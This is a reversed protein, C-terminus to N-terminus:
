GRELCSFLTEEKKQKESGTTTVAPKVPARLSWCNKKADDVRMRVSVDSILLLRAHLAVGHVCM